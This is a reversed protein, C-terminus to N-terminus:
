EILKGHKSSLQARPRTQRCLARQRFLWLHSGHDSMFVARGIHQLQLLHLSWFRVVVFREHAHNGAADIWGIRECEAAFVSLFEARMQRQNRTVVDSADHFFRARVDGLEFYAVRNVTIWSEAATPRIVDCDFFPFDSCFGFRKLKTSVAATGIPANVAHCANTSTAFSWGPCVIRM